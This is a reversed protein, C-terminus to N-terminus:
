CGTQKKLMEWDTKVISYVMADSIVGEFVLAQRLTGEYVFGCKEIVRKSNLNLISHSISVVNVCEEEFCEHLIREVAEPMIGRGWYCESLVYGINKAKLGNKMRMSDQRCGISGIVKGTAREEIAWETESKMFMQIIKLSDEKTKHPPWGARPGIKSNQAYEYMDDVDNMSWPRLILRKTELTKM